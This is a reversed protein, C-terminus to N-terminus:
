EKFKIYNKLNYTITSAGFFILILSMIKTYNYKNINKYIYWGLYIMIPGIIFIDMLRINQSKSGSTNIYGIILGIFIIIVLINM